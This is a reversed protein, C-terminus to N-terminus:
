KDSTMAEKLERWLDMVIIRTEEPTGTNDIIKHGFRIKEDMPMQAAIKRRAEEEGILDRKMLREMQTDDDAYVIWIEDVTSALGAELLLPVMYFVIETGKLREAELMQEALKRIAPHTIRELRKRAEADSFVIAGLAKRDIGGDPLLIRSGFTEVIERYAGTGPEVVRRALQDADIVTAGRDKLISAVMSKGSAIGGTLGIIKM